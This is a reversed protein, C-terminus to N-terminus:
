WLCASVRPGREPLDLVSAFVPDRVDGGLCDFMVYLRKQFEPFSLPGSFQCRPVIRPQGVGHHIIETVHQHATELIICKKQGNKPLSFGSDSNLGTEDVPLVTRQDAQQVSAVQVDFAGRWAKDKM